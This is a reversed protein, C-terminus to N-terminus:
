ERGGDALANQGRGRAYEGVAAGEALQGHHRQDVVFQVAAVELVHPEPEHRQVHRRAADVDAAAEAVRGASSEIATYLLGVSPRGHAKRNGPLGMGLVANRAGTAFLLSTRRAASATNSRYACLRVTASSRISA